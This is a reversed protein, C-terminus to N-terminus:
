RAFSPLCFRGWITPLGNIAFLVWPLAALSFMLLLCLTMVAKFFSCHHLIYGEDTKEIKIQKM